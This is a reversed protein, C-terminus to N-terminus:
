IRDGHQFEVAALVEVGRALFVEEGGERRAGGDAQDLCARFVGLREEDARLVQAASQLAKEAGGLRGALAEIKAIERAGDAIAESAGPELLGEGVVLDGFMKEGPAVALESAEARGGDEFDAQAIGVRAAVDRAM